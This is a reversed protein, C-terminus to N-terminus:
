IDLVQKQLEFMFKSIYENYTNLYLVKGRALKLIKSYETQLFEFQPERSSWTTQAIKTFEM